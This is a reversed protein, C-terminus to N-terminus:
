KAAALPMDTTFMDRHMKWKGDEQKWAVIYKGKDLLKDGAGFLQYVGVETLGDAGGLIEEMKVSVNRVGMGMYAANFFGGVGEAGCLKPMGAVFLCADKTYKGLFLSSDKKVFGDGYTKNSENIAVKAAELDFTSKVAAPPTTCASILFSFVFVFGSIKM